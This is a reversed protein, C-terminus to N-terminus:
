RATGAQRVFGGEILGRLGERNPRIIVRCDDSSDDDRASPLIHTETKLATGPNNSLVRVIAGVVSDGRGGVYYFYISGEGLVMAKAKLEDELAQAKAKLEDSLAKERLLHKWIAYALCVTAFVVMTAGLAFGGYDKIHSFHATILAGGVVCVMAFLMAFGIQDDVRM